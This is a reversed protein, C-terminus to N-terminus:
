SNRLLLGFFFVVVNQNEKRKKEEPIFKEWFSCRRNMVIKWLPEAAAPALAACCRKGKANLYNSLAPPSGFSLPPPRPARSSSFFFFFPASPFLSLVLRTSVFFFFFAVFRGVISSFDNEKDSLSCCNPDPGALM